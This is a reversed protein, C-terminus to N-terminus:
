CPQKRDTLATIVNEQSPASAGLPGDEVNLYLSNSNILSVRDASLSLTASVLFFQM